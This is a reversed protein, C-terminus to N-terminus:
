RCNGFPGTRGLGCQLHKGVIAHLARQHATHPGGLTSHGARRHHCQPGFTNEVVKGYVLYGGILLALCLLFSIM